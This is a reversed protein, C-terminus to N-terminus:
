FKSWTTKYLRANDLHFTGKKQMEGPELKLDELDYTYLKADMDDIVSILYAEKIAPRVPSGYEIKGHHSLVCHSLVRKLEASIKGEFYLHAIAQSCLVIHGELADPGITGNCEEDLTYEKIKFLDHLMIAVKMLELNGGTLPQLATIKDLMGVTHFLLGYKEAHHIREAAPYIKFENINPKIIETMVIQLEPNKISSYHEIFRSYLEKGDPVISLKYGDVSEGTENFTSHADTKLSVKGAYESAVVKLFAVVNGVRLIAEDAQTSNWKNLIIEGTKDQLTLKLYPDGKTTSEKSVTKIYASFDVVKKEKSAANEIEKIQM